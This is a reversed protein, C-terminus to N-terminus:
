ATQTVTPKGNLAITVSIGNPATSTGGTFDLQTITAPCTIEIGAHKLRISTVRKAGIEYHIQALYVCVPDTKIYDGNLTITPAAGVVMSSGFGGDALYTATYVNENIATSIDKFANGMNEYTGGVDIMLEIESNLEVGAVKPLTTVTNEAAM